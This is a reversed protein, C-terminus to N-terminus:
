KFPNTIRLKNEILQNHRLDETYLISCNADLAASIILSDYFSFRYKEAIECASRIIPFHNIVISYKEAIEDIAQLIQAWNLGFKKFLINLFEQIVQTSIYSGTIDSLEIAVKQKEPETVSYVYILINTDLFVKDKM